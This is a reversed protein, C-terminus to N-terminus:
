FTAHNTLEATKQTTKHHLLQEEWNQLFYIAKELEIWEKKTQDNASLRTQAMLRKLRILIELCHYFIKPSSQHRKQLATLANNLSQFAELRSNESLSDMKEKISHITHLTQKEDELTKLTKLNKLIQYDHDGVLYSHRPHKNKLLSERHFHFPQIDEGFNDPTALAKGASSNLSSLNYIIKTWHQPM